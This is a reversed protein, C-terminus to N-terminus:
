TRFRYLFDNRVEPCENEKRVSECTPRIGIQPM